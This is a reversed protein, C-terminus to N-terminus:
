LPAILPANCSFPEFSMNRAAPWATGSLPDHDIQPHNIAGNGLVPVHCVSVRLLALSPSWWMIVSLLRFRPIYSLAVPLPKTPQPYLRPPNDAPQCWIAATPLPPVVPKWM